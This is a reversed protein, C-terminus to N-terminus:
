HKSPLTVFYCNTINLVVSINQRLLASLCHDACYFQLCCLPPWVGAVCLSMPLGQSSVTPRFFSPEFYYMYRITTCGPVISWLPSLQPYGSYLLSCLTNKLESLPALCHNPSAQYHRVCEKQTNVLTIALFAVTVKFIIPQTENGNTRITGYAIRPSVKITIITVATWYSM